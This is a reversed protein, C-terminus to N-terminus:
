QSSPFDLDFEMEELTTNPETIYLTKSAVDMLTTSKTGFSYYALTLLYCIPVILLIVTITSFILKWKSSNIARNVKKIGNSTHQIDEQKAKKLLEDYSDM